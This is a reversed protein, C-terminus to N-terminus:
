IRLSLPSSVTSPLGLDLLAEVVAALADKFISELAVFAVFDSIVLTFQVDAYM